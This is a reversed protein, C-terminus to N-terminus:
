SMFGKCGSVGVMPTDPSYSTYVDILICIYIMDRFGDAHAYM